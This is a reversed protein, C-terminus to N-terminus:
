HHRGKEPSVRLRLLHPPAELHLRLLLVRHRPRALVAQAPQAAGRLVLRADPRLVRLAPVVEAEWELEGGESCTHVM